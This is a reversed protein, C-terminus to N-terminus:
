GSRTSGSPSPSPAPLGQGEYGPGFGLATASGLLAGVIADSRAQDRRMRLIDSGALVRAAAGVAAPCSMSTGSIEGYGGPVTSMIGVGPAILDMEPGAASLAAVFNSRDTGYPTAVEDTAAANPPFTGKRGVAGVAVALPENAPFAVPGRDTNGAAVICVSGGLRADDIAAQLLPDPQGGSFSLNILDCKDAVARDIAKAINYNTSSSSGQPWARYSRLTVGPAVGRLGGPPLGRAAIIGAVHTGHARGNSGYDGPDEGPVTNAGGAVALDPHGAIGTDVVGVTVGAGASDAANGYFHRLGDTFSLDLPTVVVTAGDELAYRKRLLSWSTDLPYVYFRDLTVRTEGFSLTVNGNADTIGQAGIGAGFDLYAVVFAGAVPPGGQGSVVHLTIDGPARAAARAKGKTPPVVPTTIERPPAVALTYYVVPVLRLGPVSARVAPVDRATLEVLMAGDPGFSDLVRLPLTRDGVTIEGGAGAAGARRLVEQAAPSIAKGRARLGRPPVLVYQQRGAAKGM